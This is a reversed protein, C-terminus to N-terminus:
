LEILVVNIRGLTVITTGKNRNNNGKCTTNNMQVSFIDNRKNRNIDRQLHKMEPPHPISFPLYSGIYVIILISTGIGVKPQHM